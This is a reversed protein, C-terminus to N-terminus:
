NLVILTDWYNKGMGNPFGPHDTIEHKIYKIDKIKIFVEDYYKENDPYCPNMFRFDHFEISYQKSCSWDLNKLIEYEAGEIDFKILEFKKINYKKMIKKITTVPVKIERQLVCWDNPPNLLSYGQIDNYIYFTQETINEDHTVALNEYIIGEPILNKDISPNPDVCIINNCYQKIDKSFSFNICGLDLIWGDKEIISEEISHEQITIM